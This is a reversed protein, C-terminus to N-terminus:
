RLFERALHARDCKGNETVPLEELWVFRGPLMYAPLRLALLRRYFNYIVTGIM